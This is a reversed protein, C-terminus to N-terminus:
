GYGSMRLLVSLKERPSSRIVSFANLNRFSSTKNACLYGQILYGKTVNVLKHAHLMRTESQKLFNFNEIVHVLIEYLLSHITRLGHNVNYIKMTLTM